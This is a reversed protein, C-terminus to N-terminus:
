EGEKIEEIEAKFDEAEKETAFWQWGSAMPNPYARVFVCFKEGNDGTLGHRQETTWIRARMNNGGKQRIMLTKMRKRTKRLRKPL